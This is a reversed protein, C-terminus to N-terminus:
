RALDDFFAQFSKNRPQAPVTAQTPITPPADSCATMTVVTAHALPRALTPLSLHSPSLGIQTLCVRM